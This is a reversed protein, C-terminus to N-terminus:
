FLWFTMNDIGGLLYGTLSMLFGLILLIFAAKNKKKM